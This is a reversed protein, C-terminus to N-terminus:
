SWLKSMNERYNEYKVGKENNRQIHLIAGIIVSLILLVFVIIRLINNLQAQNIKKKAM